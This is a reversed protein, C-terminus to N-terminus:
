RGRAARFRMGNDRRQVTPCHGNVTRTDPHLRHQDSGVGCPRSVGHLQVWGGKLVGLAKVPEDPAADLHALRMAVGKETLHTLFEPGGHVVERIEPDHLADEAHVTLQAVLDDEEVRPAQLRLRGRTTGRQDFGVTSHNRDHPSREVSRISAHGEIRRVDGRPQGWRTVAFM